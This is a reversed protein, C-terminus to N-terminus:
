RTRQKECHNFIAVLLKDNAQRKQTLTANAPLGLFRNFGKGPLGEQRNVVLASLPPIGATQYQEALRTLTRILNSRIQASWTLGLKRVFEGYTITAGATGLDLLFNEVRNQDM